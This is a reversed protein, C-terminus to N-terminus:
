AIGSLSMGDAVTLMQGALADNTRRWIGLNLEISLLRKQCLASVRLQASPCMPSARQPERCPQKLCGRCHEPTKNICGRHRAAPLRKGSTTAGVQPLRPMPLGPGNLRSRDNSTRKVGFASMASRSQSSRKTGYASM